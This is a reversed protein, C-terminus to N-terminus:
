VQKKTLIILSELHPTKPYMDYAKAVRVDYIQQLQSVDEIQTLPNCSVYILTHPTHEKISEIVVQGLGSRPPDVIVCDAVLTSLSKNVDTNEFCYNIMSNSKSNREAYKKSDDFVEVAKVEMFGEGLCQGLVGVGAFLDVLTKDRYEFGITGFGDKIDKIIYEFVNLNVQFFSTVPYFFRKNSITDVLEWDGKSYLLSTIISAPSRPDSYVIHFSGSYHTDFLNSLFHYMSTNLPDIKSYLVAVTSQTTNSYRIILSKLDFASLQPIQNLLTIIELADENIKPHAISVQKIPIKGKQSGRKHFALNIKDEDDVYFSYEIKNRYDWEGTKDYIIEESPSIGVRSLLSTYYSNKWELEGKRTMNQFPSTSCFADDKPTTRFPSQRYLAIVNGYYVRKKRQNIAVEVEEGTLADLCWVEKSNYYGVGFGKENISEIKIRATFPKM